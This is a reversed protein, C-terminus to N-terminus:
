SVNLLQIVECRAQRWRRGIPFSAIRRTHKLPAVKINAIAQRHIWSVGTESPKRSDGPTEYAVSILSAELHRNMVRHTFKMGQIASRTLVVIEPNMMSSGIAIIRASEPFAAGPPM